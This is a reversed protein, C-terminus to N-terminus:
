RARYGWIALSAPAKRTIGFCFSSNNHFREVLDFNEYLDTTLRVVIDGAHNRPLRDLPFYTDPAFHEGQYSGFLERSHVVADKLWLQRARIYNGM